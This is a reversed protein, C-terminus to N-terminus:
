AAVWEGRPMGLGTMKCLAMLDLGAEYQRIDDKREDFQELLLGRGLDTEEPSLQLLEAKTWIQFGKLKRNALRETM